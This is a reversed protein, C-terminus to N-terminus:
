QDERPPPRFNVIDDARIWGPSGRPLLAQARVASRKALPYAGVVFYGQATALSAKGDEGKRGYAIGLFRYTEATEPEQVVARELERIAEDLMTKDETAVMARGLASRILANGGSLQLAKRYSPLSERPRGRELYAQGKLEQFYPNNPQAAILEDMIPLAATLNGARYTAVARAYKAALSNDSLPYRRLVLDGREIFGAVKARMLDHRLQLAPADRRDRYPSKEVENRLGVVRERPLPHSQLYPDIFRSIGSIQDSFREFTVLMGNPSQQTANLYTVAARDAAQEETRQYALLTRQGISASGLLVGTAAGGLEGQNGKSLAAGAVAAAGLILAIISNTSARALEQRIRALHGGAIHGTEHALVGIVENPTKADLLAGTTIFIRQGDIVFANFTRDNVLAISIDRQASIGAARLIPRVYERLLQEIEADRVLIIQQGGDGGGSQARAPRGAPVMLAFATLTVIMLRSLRRFDPKHSAMFPYLEQLQRRVTPLPAVITLWPAM